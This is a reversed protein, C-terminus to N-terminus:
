VVLVILKTIGLVLTHTHTNTHTHTHTCVKFFSMKRLKRSFKDSLNWKDNGEDEYQDIGKAKNQM